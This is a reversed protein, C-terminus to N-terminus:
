FAQKDFGEPASHLPDEWQLGAAVARALTELDTGFYCYGHITDVQQHPRMVVLRWNYLMKWAEVVYEDTEQLRFGNDIRVIREQDVDADHRLASELDDLVNSSSLLVREPSLSMPGGYRATSQLMKSAM